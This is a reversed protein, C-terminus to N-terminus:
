VRGKPHRTRTFHKRKEVFQQAYCGMVYADGRNTSRGLRAKIDDKPEVKIKGSSSVIEYTPTCLDQILVEDHPISTLGDAFLQSVYWWMEVRVNIFQVAKQETKPKEASQLGYVMHKRKEGLVERMRDYVGQGLGIKDIVILDSKFTNANIVIRGATKMTDKEGSIDQSKIQYGEMNYIVTDDGGAGIDAVTIRGEPNFRLIRNVSDRVWLAKIVTHSDELADWSGYLYAELLDPRHKFAEKLNDIYNAALFPNDGPLAQIFKKRPHQQTIFESKLYCEGPNATFLMKYPLDQNNIKLRLTGKLMGYDDRTTEESQDIFIFAYEASNFKEIVGEADLGGYDIKVTEDIIIEQSQEKIRYLDVPIFKKWTELTTDKFHKAKKRGMFGVPIPYKRPKLNFQDIIKRAQRYCWRCALVSKGGGKAGGYLLEDIDPDDLTELAL